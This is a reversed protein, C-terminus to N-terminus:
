FKFSKDRSTAGSKIIDFGSRAKKLESEIVEFMKSDQEPSYEYTIRNALAPLSRLGDIIRSVRGAAIRTFHQSKTEDARYYGYENFFERPTRRRRGSKEEDDDVSEERTAIDIPPSQHSLDPLIKSPGVDSGPAADADFTPSDNPNLENSTGIDEVDGEQLGADVTREHSKHRAM